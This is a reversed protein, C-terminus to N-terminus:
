NESHCEVYDIPSLPDRPRPAAYGFADGHPDEEEPSTPYNIIPPM